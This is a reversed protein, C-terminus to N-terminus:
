KEGRSSYKSAMMLHCLDCLPASPKVASHMPYSFPTNPPTAFVEVNEMESTINKLWMFRERYHIENEDNTVSLVIYLKECLNSATIINNVHGLHLPNFSGGYMGVKYKM